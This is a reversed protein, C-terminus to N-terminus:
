DASGSSIAKSWVTKKFGVRCTGDGGGGGGVSLSVSAPSPSTPHSEGPGQPSLGAAGCLQERRLGSPAPLRSLGDQPGAAGPAGTGRGSDRPVVAGCLVTARVSALLM